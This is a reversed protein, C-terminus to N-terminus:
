GRSGDQAARQAARRQPRQQADVICAAPPDVLLPEVLQLFFGGQVHPLQLRLDLVAGPSIEWKGRIAM